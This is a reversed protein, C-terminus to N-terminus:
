FEFRRYSNYFVMDSKIVRAITLLRTYLLKKFKLTGLYKLKVNLKSIVTKYITIIM